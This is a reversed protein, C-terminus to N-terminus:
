RASKTGIRCTRIGFIRYLPCFRFVGTVLMVVGAIMSLWGYGGLARFPDADEGPLIFPLGLLVLGALLRLVRDVQGVNAM